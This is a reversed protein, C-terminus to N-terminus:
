YPRTKRDVAPRPILTPSSAGHPRCIPKASATLPHADIDERLHRDPCELVSKEAAQSKGPGYPCSSMARCASGGTCRQNSCRILAAGSGRIWMRCIASRLLWRSVLSSKGSRHPPSASADILVPTGPEALEALVQCCRVLHHRQPRRPCSPEDDDGDLLSQAHPGNPAGAPSSPSGM